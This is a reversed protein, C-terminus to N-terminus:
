KNVPAAIARIGDDSYDRVIKAAEEVTDVTHKVKFGRMTKVKVEYAMKDRWTRHAENGSLDYTASAAM